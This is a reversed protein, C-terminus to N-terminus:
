LNPSELLYASSNKIENDDKISMVNLKFLGDIVNGKGVLMGSKSLIVKDSEIVIHFGHNNLLSGSVPKKCIEPM